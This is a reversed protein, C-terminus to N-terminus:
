ELDTNGDNAEKIYGKIFTYIIDLQNDDAKQLLEIIKEILHKKKTLDVYREIVVKRGDEYEVVMEGMLFDYPLDLIRCLKALRDAPMGQLGKEVKNLTSADSYGLRFALEKQELGKDERANKIMEGRIRLLKRRNEDM